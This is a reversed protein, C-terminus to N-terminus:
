GWGAMGALGVVTAGGSQIPHCSFEGVGKPSPPAGFMHLRSCLYRKLGPLHTVTKM